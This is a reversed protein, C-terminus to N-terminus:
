HWNAAIVPALATQYDAPLTTQGASPPAFAAMASVLADVQTDLLTLGGDTTKFQEVHYASGLYWDKIVLKDSTGIISAELNNGVHQFWLQDATVGSLIQAVDSNGATADNEVVTDVGYGSGLIYTDNGIGGTLTDAGGMGDLTDNGAGGTLSNIASNGKLINDSANGTGNIATTGTLTLNELNTGLTYTIGTEVTDIGENANETIVDTSVDVVYTDNGVGGQMKDAGGKGDLRDNGAGGTLTNVASNGTLVNDLANGTGNVTSTGTLTLNEINAGLTYTIGTEVTDTGENANETIIDTLVDVVYTDNGIGGVMTDSGTGGNLRDNGAGGTLLNAASNGTIVNDLANGTGNIATTGTLTLNEINDAITYTVSSQVLDTGENLNELVVDLSNDVVYTDNGAGGIMTDAGAGGSLTNAASNGTLVNNLTNGTGNIAATGTLILNEINAGLTYTIGTEVTDTGENLNETIVDTSVDVVYTDNGIGGILTDSGAGGNLRDNGAGGSLTNAASNGTLVNDLANGTGNIASAGTLTLKEVNATLTYTVSSQVSDIGENLNEIVLDSASDVIYSDDGAGGTMTDNGAGGDLVDDGAYGNLIDNGALGSLTDNGTGGNLTDAASTGTLTLNQVSVAIDFIDSVTLNGSDAATVRVSISGLTNPTGSFTRTAPNFSLWSPLASGDALTATYSLTDGADPDTFATSSLTYNFATGEAVSLDQLATSLVPAHNPAAVNLTVYEGASYGYNDTGWLIFQLSGVETAGPTGTFTRTASDFSLWTPLSSGDALKASYTISDWADPDTITNAAVTYTFIADAHAALTPLFSNIIPAHNNNARDVVTQIMAQDWVVGNAFEVRDIKHDSVDSGNVTDAGYYNSIYIQDTTGKIKLLLDNGVQSAVVDIDAIDAGFRLTDTASLLDTNDITDQGDGRNFIYVDNGANGVLYDNGALGSLMNNGANGWIGNNLANGTAALDTTGDLALREVNDVLTYSVSSRVFDDGEGAAEIIIDGADDVQYYDDGLGGILTDAGTGGLLSDNGAGGDLVDDGANGNLIDNGALGSLTDNGYGGLLTDAAASGTLTKPTAFDLTLYTNTAAGYNDTGWLILKLNGVNGVDPTGSFTRTASDFNLWAPLPSGDALKVSYTISDWADPDTITNAPVTYTFFQDVPTLLDPLYANIVPAHNNTARDVQTQLAAQDWVVGNAFEVQDIKHDSVDSGNVTDAGYYNSIYIQDTTGKIKLLLDNGMQSAVVDTDAIDAGFRLTDTASLLDTNDITDQGDGRNFIYVDNGANGVLYDNGALGTLTNNGENGRLSNDLANGTGSIAMGSLTLNELNGGLVYDISSVVTDNGSNFAETVLDGVNDVVYSDDGAGGAMTDAGTGGDVYDNGDGADISDNGGGAFITDNGALATIRENMASGQILDSESTGVVDMGIDIVDQLSLTRDAFVFADISSSNLPDNPNFNDIHLVDGNAFSFKLSGLGIGVASGAFNFNFQIDNGGTGSDAIQSTGFGADLVYRDRGEGGDLYNSGGQAILTDNGAGGYLQNNGTGGILIDDGGEGRLKDDGDGGNLYDNGEAGTGDGNDGILTDDGSGGLMIDSGDNGYIYDNGGEGYIVDNGAGALVFDQGNGAYIIDAADDKPDSQGTAVTGMNVLGPGYFKIDDATVPLFYQIYSRDTFDGTAEWNQFQPVYDKDGLIDDDGAGAILLDSGSGGSLVDNGAGGVLLDNGAAGGLWDDQLGTGTDTNGNLIAQETTIQRDGYLYDDGALGGYIVDKGGLGELLENPNWGFIYEDSASPPVFGTRPEFVPPPVPGDLSIGLEGAHYHSVEISGDILLTAGGAANIDGDVLIYTHEDGLADKGIFTNNGGLQNGGSLTQGDKVISGLGDTDLINDFGDGTNILYTDNGRGGELYDDGGNGILTDNGAGGYLHDSEVNGNLTDNADGGFVVQKASVTSGLVISLQSAKDEYYLPSAADKYLINHDPLIGSNRFEMKLALMNTRDQLYQDSFDDRVGAGGDYSGDVVAFPRLKILAERYAAGQDTDQKAIQQWTDADSILILQNVGSGSGAYDTVDIAKAIDYANYLHNVGGGDGVAPLPEYPAGNTTTKDFIEQMKAPGLNVYTVYLADKIEQPLAAWDAGYANHEPATYWTDAEKIMLGYLKATIDKEPNVLDAALKAYDNTYQELGLGSTGANEQVLRIATSMKFNGYGLDMYVPHLIKDMTSPAYGTDGGVAAYDAAWQEHTRTGFAGQAAFKALALVPGYLLVDAAVASPDAGSLAYKDSLFNITEDNWYGNSEEAMAGAIATASVNLANAANNIHGKQLTEVYGNIAQTSYYEKSASSFYFISSM